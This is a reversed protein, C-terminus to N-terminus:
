IRFRLRGRLIPEEIGLELSAFQTQKGLERAALQDASIGAQSKRAKPRRRTFAPLGRPELARTIAAATALPRRPAIRLNSMVVLDDRFPALPRMTPTIEFAAGETKPLWGAPIM